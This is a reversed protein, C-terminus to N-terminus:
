ITVYKQITIKSVFRPTEIMLAGTPSNRYLVLDLDDIATSQLVASRQWHQLTSWYDQWGGALSTPCTIAKIRTMCLTKKRRRQGCRITWTFVQPHGNWIRSCLACHASVAYVIIAIDL